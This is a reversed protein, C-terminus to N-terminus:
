EGQRIPNLRIRSMINNGVCRGQDVGNEIGVRYHIGGYLRSFAAESAAAIFSTFSRPELERSLGTDDVFSVQGFLRTLVEAGAGSVVSHGSPYEPFGPTQVLPGWSRRIYRQIYTVPRLLMYRYKAEFASIFADGVAMGVIAYMEATRDLSLELRDVMLGAILIWHGAPTGSLGPTDIWFFAIDIQEQTLNQGTVQVELAQQYFTSGTETSFTVDLPVTCSSAYDLMFPRVRGWYPEVPVQEESTLVWGADGYDPIEYPPLDQLEAYGDLAIWDLLVASMEDAYEASFEVVNSGVEAEREATVAEYHDTLADSTEASVPLLESLVLYLARNSVSLWDYTGDLPLPMDPMHIIQGAITRNEPIGNLLSEYLTIGAYAYIRAAAPPNIGEAYVRDYVLQMWDVAFHPDLSTVPISSGTTEQQALTYSATGILLLLLLWISVLRKSLM